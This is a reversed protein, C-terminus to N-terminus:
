IYKNEIVELFLCGLVSQQRNKINLLSTCQLNNYLSILCKGGFTGVKALTYKNFNILVIRLSGIQLRM